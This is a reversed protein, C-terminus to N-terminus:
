LRSELPPRSAPNSSVDGTVGSAVGKGGREVATVRGLRSEQVPLRTEALGRVARWGPAGGRRRGGGEPAGAREGAARGRAGRGPPRSAGPLPRGARHLRRVRATARLLLVLESGPRARPVAAGAGAGLEGCVHGLAPRRASWRDCTAAPRPRGSGAGPGRRTDGLAPRGAEQRGVRAAPPSGGPTPAGAGSGRGPDLRKPQRRSKKASNFRTQIRTLKTVFM